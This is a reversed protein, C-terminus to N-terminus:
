TSPTPIVLQPLIKLAIQELVRYKKDPVEFKRQCDKAKGTHGAAVLNIITDSISLDNWSSQQAMPPLALQKLSQQFKSLRMRVEIQHSVFDQKTRKAVSLASELRNDLLNIMLEDKLSESYSIMVLKPMDAVALFNCYYKFALRHKKLLEIFQIESPMTERLKFIAIFVLNSDFSALAKDLVLDYQKLSLLLPIQRSSQAENEILKIALTVRNHEIALNAISAYPVVPNRGFKAQIKSAVQEDRLYRQGIMHESWKTLVKTKGDIKLWGVIWLALGFERKDLLQDIVTNPDLSVDLNRSRCINLVRLLRCTSQFEDIGTGPHFKKGFCAAQIYLSQKNPDEDSTAEQLCGLVAATMDNREIIIKLADHARADGRSYFKYADILLDRSSITNLIM